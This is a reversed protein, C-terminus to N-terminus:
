EGLEGRHRDGVGFGLLRQGRRAGPYNSSRVLTAALDLPIQMVARLLAENRQGKVQLGRACRHWGVGIRQSSLQVTRHRHERYHEVLQALDGVADVWLPSRGASLPSARREATGTWISM